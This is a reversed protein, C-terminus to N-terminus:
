YLIILKLYFGLLYFCNVQITVDQGSQLGTVNSTAFDLPICFNGVGKGARYGNVLSFDGFSTAVQDGGSSVMVGASFFSCQRTDSFLRETKSSLAGYRDLRVGSHDAVAMIFFGGSPPFQIRSYVPNPYGGQFFMHVLNDESVVNVLRSVV